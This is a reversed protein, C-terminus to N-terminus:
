LLGDGIESRNALDLLSLSQKSSPSVTPIANFTDFATTNYDNVTNVELVQIGIDGAQPNYQVITLMANDQYSAPLDGFKAAANIVDDSHESSIFRNELTM